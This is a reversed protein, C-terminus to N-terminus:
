QIGFSLRLRARSLFFKCFSCSIPHFVSVIQSHSIPSASTILFRTFNKRPALFSDGYACKLGPFAAQAHAFENKTFNSKVKVRSINLEGQVVNGRSRTIRRAVVRRKPFSDKFRQPPYQELNRSCKTTDLDCLVSCKTLSSGDEGPEPFSPYHHLKFSAGICHCSPAPCYCLRAM